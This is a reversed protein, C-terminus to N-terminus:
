ERLAVIADLLESCAERWGTYLMHRPYGAVEGMRMDKEGILEGHRKCVARELDRVVLKNIRDDFWDSIRTLGTGSDACLLIIRAEEAETPM